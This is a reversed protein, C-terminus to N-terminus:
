PALLFSRLAAAIEDPQSLFLFHPVRHLEQVTYSGAPANQRFEERQAALSAQAAPFFAAARAWEPSERALWPFMDAPGDPVTYIALSRARLREYDPRERGSGLAANTEPRAVSGTVRGSGDFTMTARVESEPFTPVGNMRALYAAFAAASVVDAPGPEPQTPPEGQSPGSAALVADYAADLYVLRGVSDPHDGALRTMEDGALSHGVLHVRSLGLGAIAAYVDNALTATDYGAPPQSSQGYGRRTLAVVHFDSTLRLAFGDFIHATDGAGALLLVTHGSPPGGFDIYHLHVGPAVTVFSDESSTPDTVLPGSGCASTVTLALAATLITGWRAPTASRAPLFRTKQQM